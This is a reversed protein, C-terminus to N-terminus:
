LCNLAATDLKSGTQAERSELAWLGTIPVQLSIEM